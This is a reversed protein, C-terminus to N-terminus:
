ELLSISFKFVEIEDIHQKLKPYSVTLSNSGNYNIELENQENLFNTAKFDSLGHKLSTITLTNNSYNHTVAIVENKPKNTELNWSQVWGKGSNIVNDQSDYAVNIQTAIVEGDNKCKDFTTSIFLAITIFLYKM